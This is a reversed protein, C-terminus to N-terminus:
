QLAEKVSGDVADELKDLTLFSNSFHTVDWGGGPNRRTVVVALAVGLPPKGADGQQRVPALSFRVHVDASSDYVQKYANGVLLASVAKTIYASVMYELNKDPCKADIRVGLPEAFASTVFVLALVAFGYGPIRM